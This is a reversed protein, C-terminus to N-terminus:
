FWIENGLDEYKQTLGEAVVTKKITDVTIAISGATNKNTMKSPNYTSRYDCKLNTTEAITVPLLLLLFLLKKM